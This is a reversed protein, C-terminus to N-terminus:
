ESDRRDLEEMLDEFAAEDEGTGVKFAELIQSYKWGRVMRLHDVARSLIDYRKDRYATRFTNQPGTMGVGTNLNPCTDASM